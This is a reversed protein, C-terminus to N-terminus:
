SQLAEMNKDSLPLRVATSNMKLTSGRRKKGMLLFYTATHYDYKWKKLHDWMTDAVVQHHKAMTNVCDADYCKSNEMKVEVPDLIGLTLWPHSLLKNVTIRKKPDVQLMSNILRLSEKSMFSPEEYKGAKFKASDKKYLSDISVDDFPLSGALLAYLLVGMAWVDVEPGLYQNGLVLEPAAYTPSGCSTYLPSDMGDLPRACLGFDILKLNQYRDLLVNEPKLDRHAYGLSHLYAVASVIQRFFMRSESESLRNKEVIHDFLEGGSCYEMVIFFHGDTEIVQFLKCIHEHSLTQLAKLELKVRPLDDGLSIKDMIKIAVKRWHNVKAFGGCGITREVEYLGKLAQYRVM